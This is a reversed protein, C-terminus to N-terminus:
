FSPVVYKEASYKDAGPVVPKLLVDDDAHVFYAFSQRRCRRAAEAEPIM